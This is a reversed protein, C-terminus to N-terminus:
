KVCLSEQRKENSSTQNTNCNFSNISVSKIVAFNKVVDTTYACIYWNVKFKLDIGCVNLEVDIMKFVFVSTAFLTSKVVQRIKM